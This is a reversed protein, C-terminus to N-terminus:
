FKKTTQLTYTRGRAMVNYLSTEYGQSSGSVLPPKADFLNNVGLRINLDRLWRSQSAIRYTAFLNYSKTDHVVYRYSYAGGTFQPQIYTPDGLADWTTKSTTAGTDLYRGVYYMGFGGGWQKRRWTLTTTGRWIPSAGGVNANNNGRYETRAAGPTTYAHFDNLRTWNTDFTFQGIALQPLKYNVGYDFGNVFQSAKNYYSVNVYLMQGVAARQNGPSQRANYAAFADKDAQTVPARVVSPDGQYGGTGSGLDISNINQGAALAAQTAAQLLASDNTIGAAGGGTGIVNQQAIEWYDVSVSLGKVHPVDIVIGASKGTSTEPRLNPNGSAISRRTTPGDSPLLTVNSRYPDSQSLLSRILTGTFLEALNPAHFGQNYSGRVMLWSFPKWAAGYKPKTTSGFDTYSEYRASASLELSQVLPLTFQNGVLPVVTEAYLAAVHRNGHTDSNPSFSVFDNNSPDMGSGAPNLGAYPPRYDDYAEYRFEGGFAAGIKNGGWIPLVDGSARFDGSGLKTIGNRVFPSQFTAIVSQPNQYPGTVVLNGSQVAFNQGFPNFAKTPDSQNIAAALLSRRTAGAEYDIGRATSYLLAAEWTWSDFVKGRLGAVGRYVSDTITAARSALDSFRHTTISVASPTGTLRPTGDANPAGTPSWFRNGFPNYPNTVPVVTFGDTSQSYVDPERYTQSRAQYLSLDTFATINRGLDYEGSTFVNARTSQPQIVRYASNNWYYDHGPGTAARTPAASAFGTGGGALPVLFFVGATTATTTPVGTPRAGTFASVTGYQPDTATVSGLLFQGYASSSSLLNFTTDTPVNWPAPARSTNDPNNGFPRSSSWMAQRNYFDAVMMLRGKGQNFSLGHTITARLEDGDHYKTEAYRLSLETGRFNRQMQYNVVGAVADTGYISSAGDRLIEIQAIGRNPLQNVNVSLTPPGAESQTIPHPALRRGNVLILTNASPIGRLSITANDGRAAAGAFATENGPLGTVQPLALLLDAAQSADRVEMAAQDMITVPLVKEVDIRKLNSGTVTFESMKVTEDAAANAPVPAKQALAATSASLVTALVALFKRPKVPNTEPQKTQTTTSPEPSEAPPPSPAPGSITISIAKTSEDQRAKLPTHELMLSLALLTTYEGHVANTKVGALDGPSYLLQDASQATLQKLTAVAEGAPIDFMQAGAGAARGVAPLLFGM